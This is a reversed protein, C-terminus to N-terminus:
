VAASVPVAAATYNGNGTTADMAFTPTAVPSPLAPPSTIALPSCYYPNSPSCTPDRTVTFNTTFTPNGNDLVTIVGPADALCPGPIGLVLYGDGEDTPDCVTAGPTSSNFCGTSADYTWEVTFPVNNPYQVSFEFTEGDAAGMAEIAQVVAYDSTYAVGPDTAPALNPLVVCTPDGTLYDGSDPMCEAGASEDTTQEFFTEYYYPDSSNAFVYNFAATTAFRYTNM